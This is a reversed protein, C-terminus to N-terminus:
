KKGKKAVGTVRRSKNMTKATNKKASTNGTKKMGRKM